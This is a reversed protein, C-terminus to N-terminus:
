LHRRGGHTGIILNTCSNLIGEFGIIEAAPLAERVVSFIPAGDM